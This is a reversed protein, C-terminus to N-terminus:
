HWPQFAFTTCWMFWFNTKFFAPDFQDAISTQGLMIEPEILLREITLIQRESLGFGPAPQRHGDGVLRGKSSSTYIMENWGFIEQTVTKNGDLTPISSFLDYTCLYKSEFMRGGRLV